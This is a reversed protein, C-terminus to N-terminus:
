HATIIVRGSMGSMLEPAAATIEGIVNISESVPNVRGGLRVVKAAYTKGTEDIHLSFADVYIQNNEASVLVVRNSMYVSAALSCGVEDLIRIFGATAEYRLQPPAAM